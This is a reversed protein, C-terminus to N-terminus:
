GRNRYYQSSDPLRLREGYAKKERIPLFGPLFLKKEFSDSARVPWPLQSYLGRRRCGFADSGNKGFVHTCKWPCGSNRYMSGAFLLSGAPYQGADRGGIIRYSISFEHVAGTKQAM